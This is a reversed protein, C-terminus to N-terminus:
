SAAPGPHWPTRDSQPCRTWLRQPGASEASHTAARTQGPGRPADKCAVMCAHVKSEQQKIILISCQAKVHRPYRQPIDLHSAASSLGFGIWARICFARQTACQSHMQGRVVCPRTRWDFCGATQLRNERTSLQTAKGLSYRLLPVHSTPVHQKDQSQGMCSSRKTRFTVHWPRQLHHQCIACHQVAQFRQALIVCAIIELLKEDSGLPGQTRSSLRRPLPGMGSSCM